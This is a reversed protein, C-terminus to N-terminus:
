IFDESTHKTEEYSTCVVGLAGCLDALMQDDILFVVETPSHVNFVTISGSVVGIGVSNKPLIVRDGDISTIVVHGM